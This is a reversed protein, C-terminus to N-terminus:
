GGSSRNAQYADHTLELHQLLRYGEASFHAFVGDLFDRSNPRSALVRARPDLGHVARSPIGAETRPDGQTARAGRVPERSKWVVLRM